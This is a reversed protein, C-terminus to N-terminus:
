NTWRLTFDQDISLTSASSPLGDIEIGSVTLSDALEQGAQGIAEIVLTHNGVAADERRWRWATGDVGLLGMGLEERGLGLGTAADRGFEGLGFLAGFGGRHESSPWMAGEDINVNDLNVALRTDIPLGEDRIVGVRLGGNVPPSWSQLEEEYNRWIMDPDNAPVALLEIRHGTHRDYILWLERQITDQTVEVLFGDIYVQVLRDGQGPASWWLHMLSRHEGSAQSVSRILVVEFVSQSVGLVM